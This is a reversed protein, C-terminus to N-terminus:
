PHATPPAAHSSAAPLRAPRFADRLRQAGDPGLAWVHGALFVLDLAAFMLFIKEAGFALVYVSYFVISVVKGAICIAVIGLYRAPDRATLIYLSAMVLLFIGDLRLWIEGVVPFPLGFVACAQRPIALMLVGFSGDYVAGALMWGRQRRGWLDLFSPACDVPKVSTM